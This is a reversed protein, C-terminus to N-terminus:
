IRQSGSDVTACQRASQRATSNKPDHPLERADLNAVCLRARRARSALAVAPRGILGADPAGPVLLTQASRERCKRRRAGPPGLRLRRNATPRHSCRGRRRHALRGLIEDLAHSGSADPRSGTLHVLRAHNAAVLPGKSVADQGDEAPLLERVDLAAVDLAERVLQEPGAEVRRGHPVGQHRESDDEAARDVVAVEREIRGAM